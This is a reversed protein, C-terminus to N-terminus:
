KREAVKSLTYIGPPALDSFFNELTAPTLRNLLLETSFYSRCVQKSKMRNLLRQPVFDECQIHSNDVAPNDTEDKNDQQMSIFTKIGAVEVDYTPDAMTKGKSALRCAAMWKGYQVDSNCGLELDTMDPGPIKLKIHYKNKAVNM